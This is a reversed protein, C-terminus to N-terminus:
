FIWRSTKEFVEKLSFKPIIWENPSVLIDEYSSSSSLIFSPSAINELTILEEVDDFLNSLPESLNEIRNIFINLRHLTSIEEEQESSYKKDTSSSEESEEFYKSILEHM